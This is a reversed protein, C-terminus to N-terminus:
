YGEIFVDVVGTTNVNDVTFVKILPGLVPDKDSYRATFGDGGDDNLTLQVSTIALYTKTLPPRSGGLAINVDAISEFISPRDIIVTLEHIEGQVGGPITKVQLEYDGPEIAISGGAVIWDPDGDKRYLISYGVGEIDAIIKLNGSNTVTFTATYTAELFTGGYFDGGDYMPTTGIGSYMLSGDGTAELDTGNVTFNVKTGPYGLLHFDTREVINQINASPPLRHIIFPNASYQGFFDAAKILLVRASQPIQNTLYTTVSILGDHLKLADDWTEKTSQNHYRLEFGAFDLPPEPYEWVTENDDLRGITVDPPPALPNTVTFFFSSVQDLRSTNGLFSRGLIKFEFEGPPHDIVTDGFSVTRRVFSDDSGTPRSWVEFDTSYYKYVSRDFVPSVVLHFHKTEAVFHEFFGVTLPGPPNIPSPLTSYQAVESETLNDADHQKTRVVEIAHIQYHDPDGDIEEVKLCRYPKPIGASGDLSGISFVARDPINAPLDDEVEIETLVQNSESVITSTWLEGPLQIQVTYVIGAELFLADRLSFTRAGTIAKIRGSLSYGMDPDAILFVEYPEVFQGLRNTKFTVLETEDLATILKWTTRRIAEHANTCGVGIFPFPIQKNEDIDSQRFIRRRDEAWQLDPNKFAVTFDNYRTDPDTYSYDFGDEHINEPTFLAVAQEDGRDVRLRLTGDLNDWITANFTGAIYRALERGSQPETIIANFTYRPQEGGQGDPVMVDCWQAADYVDFKDISCTYYANIGWEDNMILEYLCWAPNNTWKLLFTGDWMGTYVRTIPDYNSPVRCILGDYVGWFQPVSTFQDSARGVLQAIATGPYTKSQTIVEQFSEWAIDCFLETTNEASLKTVRIQYPEEIRPVKKRFEKAYVSTTKGRIKIPNNYFPTWESASLAKYELQFEATHEFTGKNNSKLLRNFAIRVEVYDIAGSNTQRTVPTGAFLVVNVTTSQANGGLRLILPDPDDTGPLINLEFKDFNYDGNNNQLQTDGIYFSKDGDVLGVIPGVCLGLAVEVTDKSRLTDPTRTISGGGGGGSKEGKFIYPM